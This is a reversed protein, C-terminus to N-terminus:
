LGTVLICAHSANCVSQSRLARLTSALARETLATFESYLSVGAHVWVCQVRVYQM